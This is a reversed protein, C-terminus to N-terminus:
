NSSQINVAGKATVTLSASGAGIIGQVLTDSEKGDVLHRVKVEPGRASIKGGYDSPIKLNAKGSASISSSGKMEASEDIEITVDGSPAKASAASLKGTIMIDGSRNAASVTGECGTVQIWGAGGSVKLKTQKPVTVVLPIDKSKISSSAGPIRTQVSGGGAGGRAMLGVGDGFRKLAARDTGEVTYRVRASIGERNVCSITINGGMHAISLPTGAGYEPANKSSDGQYTVLEEGKKTSSGLDIEMDMDWEDAHVPSLMTLALVLSIM